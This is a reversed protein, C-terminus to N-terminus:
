CLAGLEQNHDTHVTTADIICLLSLKLDGQPLFTTILLVQAEASAIVLYHGSLVSAEQYFAAPSHCQMQLSALCAYYILKLLVACEHRMFISVDRTVSMSLDSYLRTNFRCTKLQHVLIFCLTSNIYVHLTVEKNIAKKIMIGLLPCQYIYMYYLVICETEVPAWIFGSKMINTHHLTM